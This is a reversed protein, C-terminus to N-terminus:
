DKQSQCKKKDTHSKWTLKPTDFDLRLINLKNTSILKENDIDKELINRIQNNTFCMFKNIKLEWRDTWEKIDKIAKELETKVKIINKDQSIITIDDTCIVKYIKESLNLDSM